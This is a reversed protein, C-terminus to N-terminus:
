FHQFGNAHYERIYWDYAFDDVPRIRFASIGIFPMQTILLDKDIEMVPGIDFWPSQEGIKAQPILKGVEDDPQKVGVSVAHGLAGLQYYRDSDEYNLKTTGEFVQM